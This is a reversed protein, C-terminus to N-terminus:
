RKVYKKFLDGREKYNKFLGFSASAPSLLCIKGKSTYKYAVEIATRMNDVFFPQISNKDIAEWIKKGTDPFLIITKINSKSIRDALKSFNLGRDYGGLIITSIDKGLADIAAITAEPITSLSDNYFKIGRYTGVFELRHSLVKFNKIAEVIKAFDIKFIKAVAISAKINHL